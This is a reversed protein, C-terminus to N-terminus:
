EMDELDDQGFGFGSFDGFGGQFGGFGGFGGAGGQGANNVADAGYQDYIKRKNEDSLVSYAESIEKFKEAAGPEKNVDPHYKKALTKYAKEIVENSANESVELIEYYNKM